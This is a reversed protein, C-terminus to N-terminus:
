PTCTTATGYQCSRTDNDTDKVLYGNTWDATTTAHSTTSLDSWVFNNASHLSAAAANAVASTDEAFSIAISDGSGGWNAVTARIEYTKSTGAGIQEAEGITCSTGPCFSLTSAAISTVTSGIQTASGTVDYLQFSTFEAGVTTVTFSIERWDIDGAADAAVSFRYLGQGTAVTNATYGTTLRSLTPVSRKLYKTGYGTSAASNVDSSALSTDQSGSSDTAKFGEDADLVVSVAAGSKADPHSALNVLVDLDASSNLPVHMSLGTFTATAYPQSTSPTVLSQTVTQEVGASNKYKLTVNAVSSAADNPIKVRLEEVTYASNAAAFDFRGVHVMTSGMLVNSNVPTGADRTVTLTGSGITITQGTADTGITVSQGTVAGTGGTTSDMTTILSGSNSGSKINAIVNVVKTSSVPMALNVSFTNSTGASSKTSGIQVGTANDVLRLDTISAANDSSMDVVITNVNVGETSGTSLTFSGIKANNSGAVITTNAYASYKTGTLTSSSVTISNGEVENIDSSLRDGSSIGETDANDISVGVDVTTGTTYNTGDAQKADGYVEVVVTQGATLIMSSGLSITTTTDSSTSGIDQTSGVQAGNMMVRVNDMSDNSIGSVDIDLTIEEVKLNDGSARFEYRAWLVNSAAVAVNSTPSTNAKVVSLGVGEITNASSAAATSGATSQSLESDVANIDIARRVQFDFTEGSGGVIDGVLRIENGGTELKVPAASLDFVVRDNSVSMTSGVQVGKVMLKVNQFASDAASGRNEFQISKLWVARNNVTLTSQFLTTDNVPAFTGGTPTVTGFSITAISASSILFNAGSVPLVVAGDLAGSASVNTLQVGVQQGSAGSSAIDSRVSVTVMSGAPVVFLGLSNNFNFASNSIGAPDTLRTAGQYLYVNSLVSDVSSGTRKFAVNTVTIPAGTPNSFTFKALEAIGQGQVLTGAVPSDSALMVKLGNGTVVPGPGTSTCNANAKARTVPGWYGATPTIGNAAQFKSVAARTLSGFTSTENGPSGAGSAAIVAGHSNLYKQIQMVEGGTDGMQHNRTFTFCAGGTTTTSGGSLAAIQALLMQVQAQLDTLTQAKAPAVFAFSLGLVLGLTLVATAVHKTTLSMTHQSREGSVRVLEHPRAASAEKRSPSTM